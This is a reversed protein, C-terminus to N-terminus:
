LASVLPRSLPSSAMEGPMDAVGAGSQAPRKNCQHLRRHRDEVGALARLVRVCANSLTVKGIIGFRQLEYAQAPNMGRAYLNPGEACRPAESVGLSKCLYAVGAQSNDYREIEAFGFKRWDWQLRHALTRLNCEGLGGLLYHFHFRGGMGGTEERLAVLLRSYPQGSFRAAAGIHRWAPGYATVPRPSDRFTLTGFLGWDLRALILAVAEGTLEM